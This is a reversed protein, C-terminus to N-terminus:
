FSRTPFSSEALLNADGTLSHLRRPDNGFAPTSQSAQSRRAGSYSIFDGEGPEFDRVEGRREVVFYDAGEGGFLRDKGRGGILTDNGKGGLLTRSLFAPCCLNQRELSSFTV